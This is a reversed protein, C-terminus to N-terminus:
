HTKFYDSTKKPMEYQKGRLLENVSCSFEKKPGAYKYYFADNTKKWSAWSLNFIESSQEFIKTRVLKEKVGTRVTIKRLSM